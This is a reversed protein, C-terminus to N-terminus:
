RRCFPIPDSILDPRLGLQTAWNRSRGANTTSSGSLSPRGLTPEWRTASSLRFAAAVVPRAPVRYSDSIAM